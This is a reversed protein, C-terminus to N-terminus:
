LAADIKLLGQMQEVLQVSYYRRSANPQQPNILVLTGRCHLINLHTNSRQRTGLPAAQQQTICVRNAGRQSAKIVLASFGSDLKHVAQTGHLFSDLLSQTLLLFWSGLLCLAHELVLSTPMEKIYIYLKLVCRSLQELLRQNQESLEKVARSKEREVERLQTQHQELEEQLQQVDGELEAVRSEWEGERSECRRRLEHKEQELLELQETLDKHMNEYQRTLDQNRELLAKGLRAALVLDKEKHRILSLLDPDQGNIPAELGAMDGCDEQEGALMALEEELALGLGGQGPYLLSRGTLDQLFGGTGPPPKMNHASTHEMCDSDLESPASTATPSSTFDLCFTSM